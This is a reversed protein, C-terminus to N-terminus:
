LQRIHVIQGRGDVHRIPCWRKFKSMYICEFACKKDLNVYKDINMNEFEDEDDSEELADLNNNEKINRFISNMMKSTKYNPIYTIGCYVRESGRGFAYIHYIDNQLDAKIEFITREKYQPKSFHFRPLQPPIFLLSPPIEPDQKSFNPLINKSWPFNIYPVIHNNSRHQLHHINYPIISKYSDPINNPEDQINWFVPMIVPFIENKHLLSDNNQFLEHLFAYKEQFPQKYTPIGQYYLIDELVFIERVDPIECLCGYLLTGYALNQPIHEHIIKVSSVKKNKGLELLCCVDKNRFFTYWLIVKKGYPIAFTMNYQNSVKKHSITEYSLEFPPLRSIIDNTQQFTLTLFNM